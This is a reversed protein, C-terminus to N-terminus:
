RTPRPPPPGPGDVAIGTTANVATNVNGAQQVSASFDHQGIGNTYANIAQAVSSLSTLGGNTASNNVLVNLNGSSDVTVVPGASANGETFTVTPDRCLALSRGPQGRRGHQRHRSAAPPATTPRPQIGKHGLRRQLDGHIPHRQQHRQCNTDSTVGTNAVTVNLTQSASDFAAARDRHRGHQQHQVCHPHRQIDHRRGPRDRQDLKRRRLDCDRQSQHRKACARRQDDEGSRPRRPWRLSKLTSGSRQQRHRLQGPQGRSAKCRTIARVRASTSASTATWSTAAKSAQRRCSICNIATLSPTSKCSTPRM